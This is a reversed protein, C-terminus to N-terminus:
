LSFDFFANDEVEIVGKPSANYAVVADFVNLDSIKAYTLGKCFKLVPQFFEFVPANDQGYATFIVFINSFFYEFFVRIHHQFSVVKGYKYSVPFVFGFVNFGDFVGEVYSVIGHDKNVVTSEFAVHYPFKDGVDTDGFHRFVRSFVEFVEVAQVKKFCDRKRFFVDLAGLM